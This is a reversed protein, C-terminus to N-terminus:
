SRHDATWLEHRDPQCHCPGSKSRQDRRQGLHHLQSAWPVSTWTFAPQSTAITGGPSQLAPGTLAVTFTQAGSWLGGSGTVGQVWWQYTHGPLRPRARCDMITGTLGTVHPARKSQGTTMDNVWVTYSQAWAVSNWSFNPQQTNVPGSPGNLTPAPLSLGNFNLAVNQPGVTVTQTIPALLGGGSATVTYTGPNVRISYGGTNFDQVSGVGAISITVGSLGEGIAYHGTNNTDNFVVGTIFPQTSSDAASDVVYYNQYQGTGGLVVGTGVQSQNQYQSGIALLM